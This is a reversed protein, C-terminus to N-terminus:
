GLRGLLSEAVGRLGVAPRAPEPSVLVAVPAAANTQFAIRGPGTLRLWGTSGTVDEEGQPVMRLAVGPDKCLWAQPRLDFPEGGRLVHEFVDGEAQVWVVGGEYGATFRDLGIGPRGAIRDALDQVLERALTVGVGFLFRGARLEVTEGGGLPIPFIMGARASFGIQGPGTAVVGSADARLVVSAEKWLVADADVLMPQGAELTAALGQGRLWCAVGGLVSDADQRPLPQPLHRPLKQPLHRPLPMHELGAM